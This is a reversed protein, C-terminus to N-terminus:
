KGMLSTVPDTQEKASVLESAVTGRLRKRRGVGFRPHLEQLSGALVLDIVREGDELDGRGRGHVDVIDIFFDM